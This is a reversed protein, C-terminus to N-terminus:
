RKVYIDTFRIDQFVADESIGTRLARRLRHRAIASDYMHRAIWAGALWVVPRNSFRYVMDWWIKECDSPRFPASFMIWILRDAVRRTEDVFMSDDASGGPIDLHNQDMGRIALRQLHRLMISDNYRM